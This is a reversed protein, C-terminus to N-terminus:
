PFSSNYNWHCAIGVPIHPIEQFGQSSKAFVIESIVLENELKM